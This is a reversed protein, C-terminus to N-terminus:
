KKKKIGSYGANSEWPGTAFCWKHKLREHREMTEYKLTIKRWCKM